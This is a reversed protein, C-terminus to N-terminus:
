APTMRVSRSSSINSTAASGPSDAPAALRAADRDERVGAARADERGVGALGVSQRQRRQAVRRAGLQSRKQRRRRADAVGDVHQGRRRRVVIASRERRDQAVVLDVADDRDENRRQDGIRGLDRRRDASAGRSPARALRHEAHEHARFARGRRERRNRAVRERFRRRQSKRSHGGVALPARPREFRAAARDPKSRSPM